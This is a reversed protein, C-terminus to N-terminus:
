SRTAKLRRLRALSRSMWPTQKIKRKAQLLAALLPAAVAGKPSAPAITDFLEFTEDCIANKYRAEGVGLDFHTFGRAVLNRLLAHLLLDGPSSRAIEEDMDFSNLMASFRGGHTLGAYTAIIRGDLTLAHTELAGDGTAASLRRVFDRMDPRDFSADVSAERLRASKQALLADAIERARAGTAAHEFALAGLKELRAQKKRLKKRADNALRADLESAQAPLATGYAFSPSPRSGRLVLPNSVRDFVRPQNGLLFLDVREPASRAAERLLERIDKEEFAVGRRFLGLNFNSDKGGLFRAIRLPGRRELALPLLAIPRLDAARAVVIMPRLGGARTEFWIRAFDYAQYASAPAEAFLEEWDARADEFREFVNPAPSVAAEAGCRRLGSLHEARVNVM